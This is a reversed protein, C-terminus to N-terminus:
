FPKWKDEEPSNDVSFVQTGNLNLPKWRDESRFSDKSFVRVADRFKKAGSSQREASGKLYRDKWYDPMADVDQVTVSTVKFPRACGYDPYIVESCDLTACIRDSLNDMDVVYGKSINLVVSWEIDVNRLDELMNSAIRREGKAMARLVGYVLSNHTKSFDAGESPKFRTDAYFFNDNVSIICDGTSKFYNSLMNARMADQKSIELFDCRVRESGIQSHEMFWEVMLVNNEEPTIIVDIQEKIGTVRDTKKENYFNDNGEQIAKIIYDKVEQSYIVKEPSDNIRVYFSNDEVFKLFNEFIYDEYKGLLQVLDGKTITEDRLTYGEPTKEICRKKYEM